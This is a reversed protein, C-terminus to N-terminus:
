RLRTQQRSLFFNQARPLSTEPTPPRVLVRPITVPTPPIRADELAVDGSRLWLLLWVDLHSFCKFSIAWQRVMVPVFLSINCVCKYAFMDSHVCFVCRTHKMHM